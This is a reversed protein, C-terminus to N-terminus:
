GKLFTSIPQAVSLTPDDSIIIQGAKKSTTNFVIPAVFNVVSNEIPSQLIVINYILVNSQEDIQLLEQLPTAIDFSYEQLAFPDVLTFTIEKSDPSELRMFIEDIKELTVQTINEFGLLPQVVDFLM